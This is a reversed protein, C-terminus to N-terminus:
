LQRGLRTGFVIHLCLVSILKCYLVQIGPPSHTISLLHFGYNYHLCKRMDVHGERYSM